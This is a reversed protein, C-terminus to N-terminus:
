STAPRSNQDVQKMKNAITKRKRRVISKHNSPPILSIAFIHLNFCKQRHCLYQRKTRNSDELYSFSVKRSLEDIKIHFSLLPAISAWSIKM